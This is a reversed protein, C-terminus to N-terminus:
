LSPTAELSKPTALATEITTSSMVSPMLQAYTRSSMLSSSACHGGGLEPADGEVGQRDHDRDRPGEGHVPHDVRGEDGVGRRLLEAGVEERAAVEGGRVEGARDGVAREEARETHADRDGEDHHGDAEHEGEEPGDGDAAEAEASALAEHEGQQEDLHQGRLPEEDRLVLHDGRDAQEVGHEPHAD